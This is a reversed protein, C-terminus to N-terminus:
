GVLTLITFLKQKDSANHENPLASLQYTKSRCITRILEKMDFGSQIFHRVFRQALEPNAPPNTERMDDEPEVIGRSFFHKM